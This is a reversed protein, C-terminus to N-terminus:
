KRDSLKFPTIVHCGRGASSAIINKNKETLKMNDTILSRPGVTFEKEYLYTGKVKVPTYEM